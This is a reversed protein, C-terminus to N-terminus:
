FEGLWQPDFKQAANLFSTSWQSAYPIMCGRNSHQIVGGMLLTCHLLDNYFVKSIIKSTALICEYDSLQYSIHKCVNSASYM